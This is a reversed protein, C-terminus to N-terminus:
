KIDGRLLHFRTHENTSKFLQLNNIINNLKNRDIHHVVEEPKLYRGLHKEMVLRHEYVYGRKNKYPHNETKITKYGNTYHEAKHDKWRIESGKKSNKKCRTITIIDTKMFIYYCKNSCFKKWKKIEIDCQKCKM